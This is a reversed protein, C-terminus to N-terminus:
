IVVAVCLTQSATDAIAYPKGANASDDLATPEFVYEFAAGGPLPLDRSALAPNTVGLYVIGLNAPHAVILLRFAQKALIGATLGLATEVAGLVDVSAGSGVSIQALKATASLPWLARRLTNEGSNM